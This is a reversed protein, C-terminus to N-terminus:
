LEIVGRSRNAEFKSIKFQTTKSKYPFILKGTFDNLHPYVAPTICQRPLVLIDISTQSGIRKTVKASSPEWALIKYTKEKQEVQGQSQTLNSLRTHLAPKAASISKFSFVLSPYSICAPMQAQFVM